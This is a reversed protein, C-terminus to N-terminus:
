GKEHPRRAVGIVSSGNLRSGPLCDKGVRFRMTAPMVRRGTTTSALRVLPASMVALKALSYPRCLVHDLRLDHGHERALM